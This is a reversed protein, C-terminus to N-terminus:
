VSDAMEPRALPIWISDVSFTIRASPRRTKRRTNPGVVAMSVLKKPPM